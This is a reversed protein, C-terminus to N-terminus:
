WTGARPGPLALKNFALSSGDVQDDHAGYPFSSVEDLYAGNWAGKVLKVNRAECQAAFPGARTGKDGTSREAKVNYGALARMTVQVVTKGSSGPEQELWTTVNGFRAADTAATQAIIKEAALDSFQGRIVDEIYFVNDADKAMLLGVTYDGDRETAARDWARVRQAQAPAAGVIEFWERKFMGGGPPTPRGQYLASFAYSGLVTRREALAAEDYRAPCLAEGLERGLPDGAEAIAPLNVVTWNPGDESALIRGALDDEHWRTMILILAANPGQRTFLDQSYWDWVRDRYSQSEAEERSKVPDDICILDGGQGTIGAGVGVARFIGGAATQWEEVARRERDLAIRGEAIKRAQRSFRNALTQNYCGIIVRLAPERELRWVPYRITTMQSKGHQPPVFIMLRKLAGNTVKDLGETRIYRLHDWEWSYSPTVQPLWQDFPAVQAVQGSADDYALGTDVQPLDVTLDLV